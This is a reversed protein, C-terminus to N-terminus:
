RGEVFMQSVLASAEDFRRAVEEWSVPAPTIEDLSVVGEPVPVHPHLPIQRGPAEALLQEVEPTLLFDILTRAQVPHPAGSILAVTNPILIVEDPLLARVPRGQARAVEVDDTDTWGVALAGRAVADCVQSNSDLISVGNTQLHTLWAATRGPGWDTYLVALHSATTGFLPLALGSNAAHPGEFIEEYRGISYEPSIADTNAVVVRARAAFGTWHGEPDKFGPPISAANSSHYAQTLGRAKLRLTQVNENNWFVDCQPRGAETILRNVLGTTKTAETDYLPKTRIGTREEFLELIPQSLPQDLSTYVVVQHGEKGCALLLVFVSLHLPIRTVRILSAGTRRPTPRM